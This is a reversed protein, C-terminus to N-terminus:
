HFDKQLTNEDLVEHYRVTLLCRHCNIEVLNSIHINNNISFYYLEWIYSFASATIAERTDLAFDHNAGGGTEWLIQWDLNFCFNM